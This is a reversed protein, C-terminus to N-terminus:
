VYVIQGCSRPHKCRAYLYALHAIRATCSDEAISARLYSLNAIDIVCRFLLYDCILAIRNGIITSGLSHVPPMNAHHSETLSKIHLSSLTFIKFVSVVPTHNYTHTLLLQITLEVIINNKTVDLLELTVQESNRGIRVLSKGVLLFFLENPAVYHDLNSHVLAHLSESRQKCLLFARIYVVVAILYCVSYEIAIIAFLRISWCRVIYNNLNAVLYLPFLVAVYNLQRGRCLIACCIVSRSNCHVVLETCWMVCTVQICIAILNHVRILPLYDCRNDRRFLNHVIGFVELKELARRVIDDIRDRYHVINHRGNGVVSAM